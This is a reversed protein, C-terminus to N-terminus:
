IAVKTNVLYSITGDGAGILVDTKGDRNVDGLTPSANTGVDVGDLPNDTGLQEVFNASLATGDNQFYRVQGDSGGVILDQDGDGDLDAFDPASRGVVSMGDLPSATGTRQVFDANVLNGVNEFYNLNGSQDGVVLDQDGDVDLDVFAPSADTGVDVGDVLTPDAFSPTVSLLVRTELSEVSALGRRRKRNRRRHTKKSSKPSQAKSMRSSRSM